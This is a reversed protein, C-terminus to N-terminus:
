PETSFRKFKIGSHPLVHKSLLTSSFTNQGLITSVSHMRTYYVAKKGALINAPAFTSFPPVLGRGDDSFWQWVTLVHM